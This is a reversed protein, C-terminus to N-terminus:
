AVAGVDDKDVRNQEDQAADPDMREVFVSDGFEHTHDGAADLAEDVRRLTEDDVFARLLRTTARARNTRARYSRM